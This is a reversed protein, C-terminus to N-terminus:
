ARCIPQLGYVALIPINHITSVSMIRANVDRTSTIARSRLTSSRSQVLQLTDNVKNSIYM